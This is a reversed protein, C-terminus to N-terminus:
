LEEAFRFEARHFVSWGVALVVVSVLASALFPGSSPPEGRLLIARFGEVIPSMPNLSLITGAVGGVHDVPYVVATALMWITLLLELVYKVDAYFLNAM